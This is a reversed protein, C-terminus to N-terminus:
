IEHFIVCGAREATRPGIFAHHASALAMVRLISCLIEDVPKVSREGSGNFRPHCHFINAVEARNLEGLM